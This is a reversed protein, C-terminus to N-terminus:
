LRFSVLKVLLGGMAFYLDIVAYIFLMKSYAKFSKPTKFIVLFFVTGISVLSFLACLAFSTQFVSYFKTNKYVVHTTNEYYNENFVYLNEPNYTSTNSFSMAIPKLSSTCRIPGVFIKQFYFM